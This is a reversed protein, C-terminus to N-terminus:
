SLLGVAVLEGWDGTVFLTNGAVRPTVGHGEQTFVKLSSRMHLERGRQDLLFLRGQLSLCALQGSIGLSQTLIHDQPFGHTVTRADQLVVTRINRGQSLVAFSSTAALAHVRGESSDALVRWGVSETEVALLGGAETVLLLQRNRCLWAVTALQHDIQLRFKVEGTRSDFALVMGDLTGTWVREGDFVVPFWSGTPVTTRWCREMGDPRVRWCSLQSERGSVVAVVQEGCVALDSCLNGGAAFERPPAKPNVLDLCFLKTACGAVLMHGSLVPALQLKGEVALKASRLSEAGHESFAECEGHRGCVLLVDRYVLPAVDVPFLSTRWRQEGLDVPGIRNVEQSACTVTVSALPQGCRACFAALLLSRGRCAPCEVLRPDRALSTSAETLRAASGEAFRM